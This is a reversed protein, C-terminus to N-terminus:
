GRSLKRRIHRRRWRCDIFRERDQGFCPLVQEALKAYLGAAHHADLAEPTHLPPPSAQDGIAWGTIEELHGEIWWGDLVSLSPVGNLAVKMGSTSSAEQPTLPTNLWVDVGACVVKAHDM